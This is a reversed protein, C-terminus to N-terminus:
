PDVIRRDDLAPLQRRPRLKELAVVAQEIPDLFRFPLAFPHFAM